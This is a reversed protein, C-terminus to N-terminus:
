QGRVASSVERVAEGAPTRPRVEFKSDWKWPSFVLLVEATPRRALHALHSQLAEAHEADSDCSTRRVNVETFFVPTDRPLDVADLLTDIERASRQGGQDRNVYRCPRYFHLNLGSFLGSRIGPALERLVSAAQELPEGPRYGLGGPLCVADPATTRAGECFAHVMGIALPQYTEALHDLEKQVSFGLITDPYRAALRGWAAGAEEVGDVQSRQLGRPPRHIGFLVRKGRAQAAQVFREAVNVRRGDYAGGGTQARVVTLGMADMDDFREELEAGSLTIPVNGAGLLIGHRSGDQACAAATLFLFAGLLPLFGRLRHSLPSPSTSRM